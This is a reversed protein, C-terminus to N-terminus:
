ISNQYIISRDAFGELLEPPMEGKQFQALTRLDWM